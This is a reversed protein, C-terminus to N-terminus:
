PALPISLEREIARAEEMYEFSLEELATRGWGTRTKSLSMCFLAKQRLCPAMDPRDALLCDACADDDCFRM